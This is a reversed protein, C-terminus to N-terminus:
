ASSSALAAALSAAPTTDDASARASVALCDIARGSRSRATRSALDIACGPGTLEDPGRFGDFSGLATRSRHTAAVDSLPVIVPRM